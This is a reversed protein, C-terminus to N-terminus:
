TIFIKIFRDGFLEGYVGKAAEKESFVATQDPEIDPDYILFPVPDSTHTRISCPTPHDPLVAIRVPEPMCAVSEALPGVIMRDLNEITKIKLQADGEHGAEDSAEIHLFVFDTDNDGLAKLAAQLKGEYNTDYLGTAGDVKITALGAYIGIGFVLDVASIVVGKNIPVLEKLLAMAPRYGPSWPWICNAAYKGLKRRAVNVPHNELITRSKSILDRLLEAFVDADAVAACPLVTDIDAGPVDHPPTCEVRADAGKVLLLNRYSVGPYFKINDNGLEKQLTDILETAEETSIHGASHNEIRNNDSVSILNCRMAVTGTPVDVGMSAAELVGRGQYLRAVDYGLVSMNAVESGPHLGAPVTHLLGCRGKLALRDMNPTYAAELPTRNGLAEIPLDAMGDALIIVYKM